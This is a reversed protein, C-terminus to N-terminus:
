FLIISPKPAAFLLTNTNVYMYEFLHYVVHLKLKDIM